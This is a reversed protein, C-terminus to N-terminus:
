DQPDTAEALEAALVLHTRRDGPVTLARWMARGHPDPAVTVTTGGTLGSRLTRSGARYFSRLAYTLTVQRTAPTGYAGTGTLREAAAQRYDALVGEQLALEQEQSAVADRARQLEEELVAVRAQLAALSGQTTAVRAEQTELRAGTLSHPCTEGDRGCLECVYAPATADQAAARRAILDLEREAVQAVHNDCAVHATGAVVVLLRTISRCPTGDAKLGTCRSGTAHQTGRTTVGAPLTPAKMM